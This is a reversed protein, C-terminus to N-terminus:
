GREREKQERYARLKARLGESENFFPLTGEAVYEEVLEPNERRLLTLAILADLAQDERVEDGM